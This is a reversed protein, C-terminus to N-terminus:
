AREGSSTSGGRTLLERRDNGGAATAADLADSIRGQAKEILATIAEGLWAREPNASSTLEQDCLHVVADLLVHAYEIPHVVERTDGKAQRNPRTTDAM